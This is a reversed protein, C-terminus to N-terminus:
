KNEQAQPTTKKLLFQGIQLHTAKRESEPILSYAAQQVRDHLFKYKSEVNELNLKQYEIQDFLLPLQYDESQPLIFGQQLAIALEKATASISKQQVFALLDLSFSNGICAALKILQQTKEPLKSINRAILEVVNYDTIGVSQIAESSWIWRDINVQYTILNESYLTKLFQSIFFPNGQTKYFILEALDKLEDRNVKGNFTEEILQRVSDYSLPQIELHNILLHTTKLKELMLTLPHTSSVENDRYAGIFFLYKSRKDTMILQLLKLSASDIWQLDDLFIVLPHNPTCFVKIFEKFVQNFRNEAELSNLQPVEPQKGIILEVEPIVDIIIQANPTIARIIHDKWGEIEEQNETLLQRILEQLAQILALYPINRKLQEFKGRIFYGRAEVIAKQVENVISTKGIGSYGSVLMIEIASEVKEVGAVKPNAVRKFAELLRVIEQSRGYLKQPILLQNPYDRKGLAFIKLRSQKELQCLCTELDFKLGAASQYREEANKAMLKRVINSIMPPVSFQELPPPQKAIHCHVLEMLDQSRFPLMGTLMEYFTVGLSYFDSRHDIRRNM